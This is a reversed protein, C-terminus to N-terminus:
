RKPYVDDYPYFTFVKSRKFISVRIYPNFLPSYRDVLIYGEKLLDKERKNAEEMDDPIRYDFRVTELETREQKKSLILKM